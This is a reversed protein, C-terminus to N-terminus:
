RCDPCRCSVAMDGPSVTVTQGNGGSGLAYLYMRLKASTVPEGAPVEDLSFTRGAPDPLSFPHAATGLEVMNSTTRAM